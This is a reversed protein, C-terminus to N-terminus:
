DILSYSLYKSPMIRPSSVSPVVFQNMNKKRAIIGWGRANLSPLYSAYRSTVLSPILFHPCKDTSVTHSWSKTLQLGGKAYCNIQFFEPVPKACNACLGDPPLVPVILCTGNWISMRHSSTIQLVQKSAQEVKAFNLLLYRVPPYHSTMRAACIMRRCM